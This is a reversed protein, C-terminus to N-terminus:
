VLPQGFLLQECGWTHLAIAASWAMVYVTSNSFGRSCKPKVIGKLGKRLDNVQFIDVEDQRSPDAQSPRNQEPGCAVIAAAGGRQNHIKRGSFHPWYIHERIEIGEAVRDSCEQPKCAQHALKDAQENGEIGITLNSRSCNAGASGGKGQPSLLAQVIHSLLEEHKCEKHLSPCRMHKDVMYMSSLSDTCILLDSSSHGIQLAKFIGVLEARQITTVVGTHYDIPDICLEVRPGASSAFRFIGTGSRYGDSKGTDRASGDTYIIENKPWLIGVM